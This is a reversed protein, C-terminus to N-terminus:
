GAARLQALTQEAVARQRPPLPEGEATLAAELWSAAEEARGQRLLVLGLSFRHMAAPDREVARRLREEAKGLDGASAELMAARALQDPEEELRGEADLADYIRRARARDGTRLALEALRLRLPVSTPELELASAFHDLAVEPEGRDEAVLGLLSHAQANRPDRRLLERADREAGTPDGTERRLTALRLLMPQSHPFRRVGRVLADVAEADRGRARAIRSELEYFDSFHVDPNASRVEELAAAASEVEGAELLRRIERVRNEIAIGRKPDLPEDSRSEGGGLYGLAALRERDEDDLERRGAGADEPAAAEIERLRRELRGADSRREDFLNESEAPDAALDYLEPRPARIYKLHGSVVGQIPAWGKEEHGAVTEFYVEAAGPAGDGVADGDGGEGGTGLLLPGLDRGPRLPGGEGPLPELGFLALLTPAVDFLSVREEVVTGAPLEGPAHIVLPVRLTEDYALLGHGHEGHEGFGEGHDSTAVVATDAAVGLEELRALVRGVQEDAFAVEGRYPDDAFRGAWPEPPAYPLHPDYLHLWGFFPRGEGAREDLWALFRDVTEDAPIEAYFNYLDRATLSDEYHDFGQALGFKAVMVYASVAAGTAYGADRFREALTTEGDALYHHGNLRVGTALPSRGTFLAAHGPLTLPVPTYASEFRVGEAALRDLAPTTAEGDGYAGVRDARLTDVTILLLNRGALPAPGPDAGAGPSATDGGGCALPTLVAAALLLATARRRLPLSRNPTMPVPEVM